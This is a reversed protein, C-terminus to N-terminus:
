LKLIGDIWTKQRLFPWIPYILVAGVKTHKSTTRARQGQPFRFASGSKGREDLGFHIGYFLRGLASHPIRGLKIEMM